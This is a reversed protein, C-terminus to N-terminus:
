QSPNDNRRWSTHTNNVEAIFGFLQAFEIAQKTSLPLGFKEQEQNFKNVMFTIFDEQLIGHDRLREFQLNFNVEIEYPHAVIIYSFLKTLWDPSLVVLDKLSKVQPFHLITGKSHFHALAGWSSCKRTLLFGVIMLLAM